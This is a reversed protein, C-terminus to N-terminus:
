PLDGRAIAVLLRRREESEMAEIRERLAGDVELDSMVGLLKPAPFGTVETAQTVDDMM